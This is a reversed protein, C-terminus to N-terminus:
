TTMPPWPRSMPPSSPTPHNTPATPSNTPQKYYTRQANSNPPYNNLRSLELAQQLLEVAPESFAESANVLDQADLLLGDIETIAGAQRRVSLLRQQTVPTPNLLLQSRLYRAETTTLPWNSMRPAISSLNDLAAAYVDYTDLYFVAM